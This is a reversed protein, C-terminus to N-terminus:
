ALLITTKYSASSLALGQRSKSQSPAAPLHRDVLWSSLKWWFWGGWGREVGGSRVLEVRAAQRSSRAKMDHSFIQQILRGPLLMEGMLFFLLSFQSIFFSCTVWSRFSAFSSKEAYCSPYHSLPTLTRFSPSLLKQEWATHSPSWFSRMISKFSVCLWTLIKWM